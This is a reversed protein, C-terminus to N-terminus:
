RPVKKFVVSDKLTTLKFGDVLGRIMETPGLFLYGNDNLSDYFSNLIGTKTEDKFYILVNRCFIVDFGTEFYADILNMYEFDVLKKVTNSIIYKDGEVRFYKELYEEPLREIARQNYVGELARGLVETSIDTSYIGINWISHFQITELLCMALTYPEEGTSCGASWIRITRDDAAVKQESLEPLIITRFSDIQSECRYFYTENTTLQNILTSLEARDVDSSALRNFYETPDDLGIERLRMKIRNELIPLKSDNFWLGCARYILNQFQLLQDRQIVQM